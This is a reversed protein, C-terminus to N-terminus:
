RNRTGGDNSYNRAGTHDTRDGPSRIQLIEFCCNKLNVTQHSSLSSKISVKFVLWNSNFFEGTALTTESELTTGETEVTTTAETTQAETTPETEATTTEPEPTTPKTTADSCFGCSRFM